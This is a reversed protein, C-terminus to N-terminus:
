DNDRGADFVIEGHHIDNWTYSIMDRSDTNYWTGSYMTSHRYAVGDTVVVSGAKPEQGPLPSFLHADQAAIRNVGNSRDFRVKLWGREDIEEVVGGVPEFRDGVRLKSM